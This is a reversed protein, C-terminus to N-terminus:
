GAYKAVREASEEGLMQRVDEIIRAEFTSPIDAPPVTEENPVVRGEAPATGMVTLGAVAISWCDDAPNTIDATIADLARQADERDAYIPTQDWPGFDSDDENYIQVVGQYVTFTEPRSAQETAPQGDPGAGRFGKDESTM